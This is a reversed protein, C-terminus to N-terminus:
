LAAWDFQTVPTKTAIDIAAKGGAAARLGSRSKQTGNRTFNLTVDATVPDANAVATPDLRLLVAFGGFRDTRAPLAQNKAAADVFIVGIAAGAVAVGGDVLRGRLLTASADFPYASTPRLTLRLLKQGAPPPPSSISEYPLGHLDVRVTGPTGPQDLFVFRGSLSTVPGNALGAASVTAPASIFSGTVPDVLEVAFLVSRQITEAPLLVASM